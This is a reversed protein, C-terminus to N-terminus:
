GAVFPEIEKLAEDMGIPEAFPGSPLSGALGGDAVLANGALQNLVAAHRGEVSHISLLTALMDPDEVSALQGLYAAAMTNEIRAGTSLIEESGSGLLEEFNSEPVPVEVAGSRNLNSSLAGFHESETRFMDKILKAVAPDEIADSASVQAFFSLEVSELLLLYNVVDVDSSAAGPGGGGTAPREEGGCSAVATAAAGAGLLQVFRKRSWAREALDSRGNTAM